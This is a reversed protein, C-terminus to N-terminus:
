TIHECRFSIFTISITEDCSIFIYPQNLCNFIIHLLTKRLTTIFEKEAEKLSDM